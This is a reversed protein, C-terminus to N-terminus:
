IRKLAFSRRHSPVLSFSTGEHSVATVDPAASPSTTPTAGSMGHSTSKAALFPVAFAVSLSLPGKSRSSGRTNTAKLGQRQVQLMWRPLDEFQRLSVSFPIRRTLLMTSAGCGGRLRALPCRLEPNCLRGPPPHVPGRPRSIRVLGAQFPTSHDSTNLSSFPISSHIHPRRLGRRKGRDRAGKERMVATVM